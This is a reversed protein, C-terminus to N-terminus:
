LYKVDNRCHLDELIAELRGFIEPLRSDNGLLLQEHSFVVLHKRNLGKWAEYRQAWNDRELRIDTKWYVMGDSVIEGQMALLASEKDDLSLCPRDDDASFLTGIGYGLLGSATPGDVNFRHVRLMSSLFARGLTSAVGATCEKFNNLFRGDALDEDNGHYSFGLWPANERINVIEDQTLNSLADHHLLYLTFRSGFKEHLAKMRRFYDSCSFRCSGDSFAKWSDDFSIHCFVSGGSPKMPVRRKKWYLMHNVKLLGPM